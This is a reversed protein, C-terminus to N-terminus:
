PERVENNFPTPRFTIGPYLPLKRVTGAGRHTM